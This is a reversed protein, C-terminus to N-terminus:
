LAIFVVIIFGSRVLVQTPTWTEAGYSLVGLIVSHYVLRKMELSLNHVMSVSSCLSDFAKSAQMIRHDFYGTMRGTEEVLSGSYKLEKVIEVAGGCAGLQLPAMDAPSLVVGAVLLM